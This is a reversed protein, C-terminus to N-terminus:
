RVKIKRGLDLIDERSYRERFPLGTKSEVIEAYAMFTKSHLALNGREEHALIAHVIEHLIVTILGNRSIPEDHHTLHFRGITHQDPWHCAAWELPQRRIDITAPVLAKIPEYGFVDQLCRKWWHLVLRPTPTVVEYGHKLLYAHLDTADGNSM